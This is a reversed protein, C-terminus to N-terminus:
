CGAQNKKDLPIFFYHRIDFVHTPVLGIADDESEIQCVMLKDETFINYTELNPEEYAVEEQAEQINKGEKISESEKFTYHM